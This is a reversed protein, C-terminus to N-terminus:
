AVVRVPDWGLERKLMAKARDHGSFAEIVAIQMATQDLQPDTHVKAMGTMGGEIEVTVWKDPLYVPGVVTVVREVQHVKGPANGEYVAIYAGGQTEYVAFRMQTGNSAIWEVECLIKAKTRIPVSASPKFTKPQYEEIMTTGKM